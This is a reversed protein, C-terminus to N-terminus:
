HKVPFIKALNVAIARLQDAEKQKGSREYDAIRRELYTRDMMREKDM